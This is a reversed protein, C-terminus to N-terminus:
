EANGRCFYNWTKHRVIPCPFDIVVAIAKCIGQVNIGLDREKSSLLNSSDKCNNEKVEFEM